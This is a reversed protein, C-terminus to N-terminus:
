HDAISVVIALNLHVEGLRWQYEVPTMYDGEFKLPDDNILYWGDPTREFINIEARFEGPAPESLTINIRHKQFQIPITNGNRVKSRSTIRSESEGVVLIADYNSALVLTSQALAPSGSASLLFVCVSFKTFRVRFGEKFGLKEALPTGSYGAM